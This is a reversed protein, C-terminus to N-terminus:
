NIIFKNIVKDFPELKLMIVSKDIKNKSKYTADNM